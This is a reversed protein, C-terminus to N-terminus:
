KGVTREHMVVGLTSAIRGSLDHAAVSWGTSRRTPVRKWGSCSKPMQGPCAAAAGAGATRCGRSGRPTTVICGTGSSQRDMGCTEASDESRRGGAGARVGADARRGGTEARWRGGAAGGGDFGGRSRSRWSRSWRRGELCLTLFCGAQLNGEPTLRFPRQCLTMESKSTREGSSVPRRRSRESASLIADDLFLKRPSRCPEAIARRYRSEHNRSVRRRFSEPLPPEVATGRSEHRQLDPGFRGRSRSPSSVGATSSFTSIM